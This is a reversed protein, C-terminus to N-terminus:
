SENSRQPFNGPEEGHRELNDAAVRHRTATATAVGGGGPSRIIYEREMEALTRGAAKVPRAHLEALPARLAGRRLFLQGKLPCM